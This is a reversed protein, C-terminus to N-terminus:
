RRCLRNLVDAVATTNAVITGSTGLGRSPVDYGSATVNDPLWGSDAGAVRSVAFVDAPRLRGCGRFTCAATLVVPRWQDPAGACRSVAAFLGAALDAVPRACPDTQGRYTVPAFGTVFFHMRAYPVLRATCKAMDDAADDPGAFRLATTVGSMTQATLRNLDAYAPAGIGMPGACANYLARNDAVYTGHAAGGALRAARLAANFTEVTAADGSVASSPVVSHTNVTRGPLAVRAADAIRAGLGGGTGGGLSHVIQVGQLRDCREAASRLAEMVRGPLGDAASHFGRAWNGGTCGRGAVFSEPRFVNRGCPRTGAGVAFLSTPDSDVLAARPSYVGGAVLARRNLVNPRRLLKWPWEV